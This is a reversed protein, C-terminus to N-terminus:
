CLPWIQHASSSPSADVNQPVHSFEPRSVTPCQGASISFGMFYLDYCTNEGERLSEVM